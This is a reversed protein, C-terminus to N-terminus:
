GLRAEDHSSCYECVVAWTRGFVVDIKFTNRLMQNQRIITVAVIIGEEVEM